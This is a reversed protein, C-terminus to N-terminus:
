MRTVPLLPPAPAPSGFGGGGPTEIIVLDGPSLQIQDTGALTVVSGDAREVRQRGLAGPEGGGLGFPPINRRSGVVTVTMTDLVRLARV